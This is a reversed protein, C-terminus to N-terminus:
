VCEPNPAWRCAACVGQDDVDIRYEVDLVSTSVPRAYVREGCHTCIVSARPDVASLRPGWADPLFGGRRLWEDLEEVRQLLESAMDVVLDPYAGHESDPLANILNSLRITLDRIAALSADPDL